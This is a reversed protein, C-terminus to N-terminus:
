SITYHLKLYITQVQRALKHWLMQMNCRRRKTLTTVHQIPAARCFAWGHFTPLLLFCGLIRSYMVTCSYSHMTMGNHHNNPVHNWHNHLCLMMPANNHHPVHPVNHGMSESRAPQMLTPVQLLKLGQVLQGLSM